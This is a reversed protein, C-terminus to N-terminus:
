LISSTSAARTERPCAQTFEVSPPFGAQPLPPEHLLHREWLTWGSSISTAPDPKRWTAM